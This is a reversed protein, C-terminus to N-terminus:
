ILVRVIIASLMALLVSFLSGILYYESFSKDELAKFRAISKAVIVFGIATWQEVVVLIFIIIRELIGILKGQGSVHDSQEAGLRYKILLMSVLAGAGHINFALGAVLVSTRTLAPWLPEPVAFWSGGNLVLIGYWVVLLIVMHLIQDMLFNSIPLLWRCGVHVKLWDIVGHSLGVVIGGILVHLSWFPLLCLIQVLTLVFVHSLLWRFQAKNAVMARTQFVFDGLMHGALLCAFLAGPGGLDVLWAYM